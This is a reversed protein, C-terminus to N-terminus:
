KKSMFKPKFINLMVPLLTMASFSSTVMTLAVLGGFNSLPMFNSFMLVVFGLAVAIANFVIPKGSVKLARSTVLDLDDSQHREYHYANMFHITYDIGIGVALSAVLATGADLRIKFLGMIAFNLLIPIALTIIGFLGAFGSKYYVSLIIFVILLSTLINWIQGEMILNSAVMQLEANGTLIVEYGLPKMNTDSYEKIDKKIHEVLKFDSDKMTMTMKAETPELSDNIYNTLNGSFLLLYQKILQHLEEKDACNYKEPDIPIEYYDGEEDANMVMNMRKLLATYSLCNGVGPYKDIIYKAMEDMQILIDPNTLDHEEDGRVIIDLFTSGVFNDCIFKDSKRVETNARFYNVIPNGVILKSAFFGAVAFIILAGAVTFAKHHVFAQTLKLLFKTIPSEDEHKAKELKTLKRNHRLGNKMLLMIAPVFTCSVIFAILVGIATFLGFQKLPLVKSTVNSGFGAITTLAALLVAGGVRKLTGFLLETTQEKTLPENQGSQLADFEDYYHSLIHIAYASGVAVMLVPIAVAVMTLPVKFLSMLGITCIASIGVVTVPLLVGSKTRFSLFLVGLLIIVVFPILRVMDQRLSKAMVVLFSPMGAIHFVNKSDKYEDLIKRVNFYVTEMEADISETNGKGAVKINITIMTKKFDDSYFTGKYLEWSLLKEKIALEDEETEPMEDVLPATEFGADDGILYDVSVVSTVSDVYQIPEFKKSLEDIFELNQKSYVYGEAFDIGVIMMNGSDYTEAVETYFVRSPNSEPLFITTDNSIVLDKLQIGLFVTIIM